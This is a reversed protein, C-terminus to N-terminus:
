TTKLYDKLKKYERDDGSSDNKNCFNSNENEKLVNDNDCDPDNERSKFDRGCVDM